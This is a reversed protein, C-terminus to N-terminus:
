SQILFCQLCCYYIIYLMRFVNMGKVFLDFTSFGDYIYFVDDSEDCGFFDFGKIDIKRFVLMFRTRFTVSINLVRVILRCNMRNEYRSYRILDFRIFLILFGIILIKDCRQDMYDIIILLFIILNVYM